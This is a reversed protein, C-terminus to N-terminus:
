NNVLLRMRGTHDYSEPDYVMYDDQCSPLRDFRPCEVQARQVVLAGDLQM